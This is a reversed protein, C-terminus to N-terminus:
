SLWPCMTVTSSEFPCTYLPFNTSPANAGNCSCRQHTYSFIIAIHLQPIDRHRSSIASYTAQFMDIYAPRMHPKKHHWIHQTIRGHESVIFRQPCSSCGPTTSPRCSASPRPLDKQSTPMTYQSHVSLRRGDKQPTLLNM